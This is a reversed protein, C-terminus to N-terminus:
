EKQFRKIILKQSVLLLILQISSVKASLNSEIEGNFSHLNSFVVKKICLNFERKGDQVTKPCYVRVGQKVAKLDYKFDDRSSLNKFLFSLLIFQMM